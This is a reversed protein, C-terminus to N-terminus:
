RAIKVSRNLERHLGFLYYALAFFRSLPMHKQKVRTSMCVALPQPGGCRAAAVGKHLHRV